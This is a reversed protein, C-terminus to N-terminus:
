GKNSLVTVARLFYETFTPWGNNHDLAAAPRQPTAGHDPRGSKEMTGWSPGWPRVMQLRQRQHVSTDLEAQLNQQKRLQAQLMAPDRWGEETAVLNRERLWMAVQACLSSWIRSGLARKEELKRAVRLFLPRERLPSRGGVM